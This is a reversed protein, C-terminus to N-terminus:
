AAHGLSQVPRIKAAFQKQKKGLASFDSEAQLGHWFAPTQGSFGGFRISMIPTISRHGLVIENIVRLAVGIARAMANKSVGMPTLSEELLIEGSTIPPNM